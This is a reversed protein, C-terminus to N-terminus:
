KLSFFALQRLAICNLTDHLAANVGSTERNGDAPLAVMSMAPLVFRAARKPRMVSVM